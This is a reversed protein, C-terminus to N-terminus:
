AGPPRYGVSRQTAADMEEATLLVVTKIRAAGSAAVALSVAAADVHGPAEAVVYVDHDGFAFDFSELTGGLGEVIGEVLARRGMAGEKLLGRAGEPTYSVEFLYRSM